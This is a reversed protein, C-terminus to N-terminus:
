NLLKLSELCKLQKDIWFDTKLSTINKNKVIAKTIIKGIDVGYEKVRVISGEAFLFELEQLAPAKSIGKALIKVLRM